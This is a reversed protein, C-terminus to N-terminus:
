GIRCAARRVRAALSGTSPQHIPATTRSYRPSADAIFADRSRVAAAGGARDHRVADRRVAPRHGLGLVAPGHGVAPTAGEADEGPAAARPRCTQAVETRAALAYPKPSAVAHGGQRPRYMHTCVQRLTMRPRTDRRRGVAGDLSITRRLGSIWLTPGYNVQM